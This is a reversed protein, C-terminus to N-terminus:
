FPCSVMMNVLMDSDTWKVSPLVAAVHKMVERFAQRPEARQGAAWLAAMWIARGLENVEIDCRELMWKRLQM